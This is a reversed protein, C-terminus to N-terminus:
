IVSAKLLVLVIYATMRHGTFTFLPSQYISDALGGNFLLGLADSEGALMPVLNRGYSVLLNNRPLSSAYEDILRPRADDDEFAAWSKLLTMTSDREQELFESAWKIYSQLHHNSCVAPKTGMEDLMASLFHRCIMETERDVSGRVM